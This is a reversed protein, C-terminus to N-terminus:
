KLEPVWCRRWSTAISTFERPALNAASAHAASAFKRRRGALAIANVTNRRTKTPTVAARNKAHSVDAFVM